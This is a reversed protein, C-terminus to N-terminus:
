VSSGALAKGQGKGSFWERMKLFEQAFNQEGASGQFGLLSLQTGEQAPPEGDHVGAEDGYSALEFLGSTSSHSTMVM